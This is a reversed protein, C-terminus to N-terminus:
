GVVGLGRRAPALHGGNQALARAARYERVKASRRSSRVGCRFGIGRRDARALRANGLRRRAAYVEVSMSTTPSTPPHSISFKPNNNRARAHRPQEHGLRQLAGPDIEGDVFLGALDASGPPVVGKGAEEDIDQRAL